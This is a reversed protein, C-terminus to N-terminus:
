QDETIFFEPASPDSQETIFAYQGDATALEIPTSYFPDFQEIYQRENAWVTAAKKQKWPKPKPKRWIPGLRQFKAM